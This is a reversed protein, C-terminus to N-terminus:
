FYYEQKMNANIWDGLNKMIAIQTEDPTIGLKTGREMDDIMTTLAQKKQLWDAKATEFERKAIEEATEVLETVPTVETPVYEGVTVAISAEHKAILEDRKRTVRDNLETDTSFYINEYVVDVKPRSKEVYDYVAEAEDTAESITILEKYIETEGTDRTFSVTAYPNGNTKEVNEIKITYM